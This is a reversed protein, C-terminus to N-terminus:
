LREVGYKGGAKLYALTHDGARGPPFAGPGAPELLVYPLGEVEVFADGPGPIQQVGMLYHEPISLGIMQVAGWSSLLSALLASKTDCDGWGEALTLPPPLLGLLDKGRVRPPPVRYAVATQVMALAAGVGEELSYGRARALEHLAGSAQALRPANRRVLKTVDASATNGSLRLGARAFLEPRRRDRESTLDAQARELQKRSDGREAELRANLQTREAELARHAAERDRALQQDNGARGQALAQGSAARARGLEAVARQNEAEAERLKRALEAKSSASIRGRRQKSNAQAVAAAERANAAAVLAADQDNYRAIAAAESGNARAVAAAERANAADVSARERRDAAAAAEKWSSQYWRDLDALEQEPMGFETVSEAVAAAAVRTRVVLDDGAFSRFGYEAVRDAGESSLRQQAHGGLQGGPQGQAAAQDYTVRVPAEPALPLSARATAFALVACAACIAALRNSAASGTARASPM